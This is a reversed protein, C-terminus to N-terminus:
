RTTGRVFPGIPQGSVDTFINGSSAAYYSSSRLEWDRQSDLWGNMWDLVTMGVTNLWLQLGSHMYDLPM